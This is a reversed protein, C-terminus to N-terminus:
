YREDLWENADVSDRSGEQADFSRAEAVEAKYAQYMTTALTRSNTMSYALDSAILFALAEEFDPAFVSVDEIDKLYKIKVAASDTVLVRDDTQDYEIAWVEDELLNTDLVRLVDKPLPYQYAFDFEPTIASQGLSIRRIAFNWPHARLLKKRLKDYQEKCIKAAKNEDELSNIRAAGIKILASNCIQVKSTAM